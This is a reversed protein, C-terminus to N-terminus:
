YFPAVIAGATPPIGDGAKPKPHARQTAPTEVHPADQVYEREAKAAARETKEAERRARFEEETELHDDDPQPQDSGLVAQSKRHLKEGDIEVLKAVQGALLPPRFLDDHEQEAVKVGDANYIHYTRM